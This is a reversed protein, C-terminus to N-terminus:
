NWPNDSNVEDTTKYYKTMILADEVPKEYYGARSGAISFGHKEYMAQAAANSKRVELSMFAANRGVAYSLLRALLKSGVGSRRHAPSVAINTIYGEDIILQMGAYGILEGDSLASFYATNRNQLEGEFMARTWPVSFCLKELELAGGIHEKTFKVIRLAM